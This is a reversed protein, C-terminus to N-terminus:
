TAVSESATAVYKRRQDNDSASSNTAVNFDKELCVKRPKDLKEEMKQLSM